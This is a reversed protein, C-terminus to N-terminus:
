LRFKLFITTRETTTTFNRSIHFVTTFNIDHKRNYMSIHKSKFNWYPSQIKISIDHREASTQRNILVICALNEYNSSLASISFYIYIYNVFIFIFCIFIFVYLLLLVLVLVLVLFLVSPGIELSTFEPILAGSKDLKTILSRHQYLVHM